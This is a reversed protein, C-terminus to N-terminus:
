DYGIMRDSRLMTRTVMKSIGKYLATLYPSVQIANKSLNDVSGLNHKQVLIQFIDGYISRLFAINNNLNTVPSKKSKGLTLFM